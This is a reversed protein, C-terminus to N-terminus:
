EGLGAAADSAATALARLADVDHPDHLAVVVQDVGARALGVLQAAVQDPTGLLARDFVASLDEAEGREVRVRELLATLGAETQAVFADIELSAAVSRGALLMSLAAAQSRFEDATCFSTEWVDAHDAVVQMARPSRAAITVPVTVGEERWLTPLVALASRLDALREEYAPYAIGRSTWWARGFSRDAGVGTRFDLRNGSIAAVTSAQRGLLLASRYAPLVNAIVPGLRIRTTARALAALTTWCDLNLGHPSEGYYFADFGLEEALLCTSEVEIYDASWM